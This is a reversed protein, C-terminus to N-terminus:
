RAGRERRPPRVLRSGPRPARAADPAMGGFGRVTSDPRRATPVGRWFPRTKVVERRSGIEVGTTAAGIAPPTVVGARTSDTTRAPPKPNTGAPYLVTSWNAASM